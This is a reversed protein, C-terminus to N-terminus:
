DSQSANNVWTERQDNIMTVMLTECSIRVRLKRQQAALWRNVVKEMAHQNEKCIDLTFDAIDVSQYIDFTDETWKKLTKLRTKSIIPTDAELCSLLSDTEVYLLDDVVTCGANQLIHDRKAQTNLGIIFELVHEFDGQPNGPLPPIIAPLNPPLPAVPPIAQQPVIPPLVIVPASQQYYWHRNSHYQQDKDVKGVAVM